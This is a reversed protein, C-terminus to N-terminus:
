KKPSKRTSPMATVACVDWEPPLGMLWRSHAPNLQGGAPVMLTEASSGTLLEGSVTLRAPFTAMIAADVLTTGDHHQSEPNSRTATKNRGGRSDNVTPTPWGSLNAQRPLQDLRIRESGDPNIAETAMGATDKWDRASPSAWGSLSAVATLTDAVGRSHRMGSSEADEAKPTPWTSLRSSSASDSTRRGLARLAFIWRGQPTYRGKWTLWYLTSGFREAVTRLRSQMSKQLAASQSSTTGSRGFTGSTMLGMAKAQRPSLNARVVAPGSHDIMPGGPKGPLTPGSASAPLSIASPIDFLSAQRSM